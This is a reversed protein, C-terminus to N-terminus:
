YMVVGSNVNVDAGTIARAADSALFVAVDAVDTAETLRDLPSEAAFEARVAEPTIGRAEAQAEIVWDLRPGSVFGPSILNVSIGHAGAEVALTRTLGVLAAKTTTYASRGVLPRKGSISGIVIIAGSEQEVMPPLLARSVLFVGTVNVAFTAEWEAPDLVWLRGSPGGIGSNNVLVDVRGHRDVVTSAMAEVSEEDTVDCTIVSPTGGAAAVLGGTEELGTENRSALVVTDGEAGFAEALARGIGQSAGTIVVVRGETM